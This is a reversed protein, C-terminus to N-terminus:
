YLLGVNLSNKLAQLNSEHNQYMPYKDAFELYWIIANRYDTLNNRRIDNNLRKIAMNHSSCPKGAFTTLIYEVGFYEMVYELTLHHERVKTTSEVIEDVNPILKRASTAMRQVNRRM